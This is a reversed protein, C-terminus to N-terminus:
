KQEYVLHTYESFSNLKSIISAIRSHYRSRILSIPFIPFRSKIPFIVIRLPTDSVQTVVDHPLQTDEETADFPSLSFPAVPEPDPEFTREINPFYSVFPNESPSPPDM